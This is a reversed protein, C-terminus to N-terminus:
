AHTPNRIAIIGPASPPTANTHGEHLRPTVRTYGQLGHTVRTYEEIIMMTMDDDNGDEYKDDDGTALPFPRKMVIQMTAM